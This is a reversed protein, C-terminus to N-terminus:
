IQDKSELNHCKFASHQFACAAKEVKNEGFQGKPRKPRTTAIDM